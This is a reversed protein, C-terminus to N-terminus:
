WFGFMVIDCRAERFVVCCLTKLVKLARNERFAKLVAYKTADSASARVAFRARQSASRSVAPPRKAAGFSSVQLLGPSASAAM